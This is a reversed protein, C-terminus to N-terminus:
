EDDLHGDDVAVVGEVTGLLATAEAVRPGSMTLAVAVLPVGEEGHNSRDSVLAM